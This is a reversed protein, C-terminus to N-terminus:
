KHLLMRKENQMQKKIVFVKTEWTEPDFAVDEEKKEEYIPQVLDEINPVYVVKSGFKDQINADTKTSVRLQGAQHDFWAYAYFGTKTSFFHMADATKRTAEMVIERDIPNEGEYVCLQFSDRGLDETNERIFNLFRNFQKTFQDPINQQTM